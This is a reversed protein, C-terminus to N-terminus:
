ESLGAAEFAVSREAFLESRVVDASRFTLV